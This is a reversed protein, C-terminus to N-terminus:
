RDISNLEPETDEDQGDYVLEYTNRDEGTSVEIITRKTGNEFTYNVSLEEPHDFVNVVTDIAEQLQATNGTPNPQDEAM